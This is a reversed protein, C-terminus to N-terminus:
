SAAHTLAAARLGSRWSLFGSWIAVVIGTVGLSAAAAPHTTTAIALAGAGAAAKAATAITSAAFAAKSASAAARTMVAQAAPGAGLAMALSKAEVGAVRTSWGTGFTAWSKLAHLFGLRASAYARIQDATTKATKARALWKSANAAGSNVAADFHSLDLGAPLVDCGAPRWYEALYIPAVGAETLARIDLRPHAAASIGMNTGALTGVGVRGGTWNGPDSRVASFGGEYGLTVALCAAFNDSAM